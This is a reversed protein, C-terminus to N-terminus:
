FCVFTQSSSMKGLGSMECSLYSPWSQLALKYFVSVIDAMGHYDWHLNDELITNLERSSSSFHCQDKLNRCLRSAVIILINIKSLYNCFSFIFGFFIHIIRFVYVIKLFIYTKM